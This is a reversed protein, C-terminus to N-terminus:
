ARSNGFDGSNGFLSFQFGPVGHDGVNPSFGKAASKRQYDRISIEGRLRPSASFVRQFV